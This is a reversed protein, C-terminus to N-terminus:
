GGVEDRRSWRKGEEERDEKVEGERLRRTREVGQEVEGRHGEGEVWMGEGKEGVRMEERCSKHSFLSAAPTLM